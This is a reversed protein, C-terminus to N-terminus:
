EKRVDNRLIASRALQLRAVYDPAFPEDLTRELQAHLRWIVRREAEGIPPLEAADEALTLFEFLVLAEPRSLNLLVDGTTM